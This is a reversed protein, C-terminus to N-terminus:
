IGIALEIVLLCSSEPVRSSSSRLVCIKSLPSNCRLNSTEDVHKTFPLLTLMTNRYLQNNSQIKKELFNFIVLFFSLIVFTARFIASPNLWDAIKANWRCVYLDIFCLRIKAVQVNASIKKTKKKTYIGEDGVLITSSSFKDAIEEWRVPIKRKKLKIKKIKILFNSLTQRHFLRIIYLTKCFIIM